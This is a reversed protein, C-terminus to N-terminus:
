QAFDVVFSEVPDEVGDVFLSVFLKFNYPPRVTRAVTLFKGEGPGLVYVEAGKKYSPTWRLVARGIDPAMAKRKADYFSLKFNGDVVQLGLFGKAGRVIEMGEIKPPLEDKKASKDATKAAPAQATTASAKASAAPTAKAGATTKNGGLILRPLSSTAPAKAEPTVAAPAASAQGM